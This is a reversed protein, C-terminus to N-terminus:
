DRLKRGDEIVESIFYGEPEIWTNKFKHDDHHKSSWYVIGVQNDNEDFRPSRERFEKYKQGPLIPEICLECRHAKKATRVIEVM